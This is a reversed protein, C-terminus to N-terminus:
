HVIGTKEAPIQEYLRDKGIEELIDVLRHVEAYTNYLAVPALRVVNPERYDPIVKKLKLAQCIRYAESHELAVHGGRVADERPNGVAYGYPTLRADILFMLYATLNLSKERIRDIGAEAVIKLNGELGAMSLMPATGTLWADADPAPDHKHHLEFQTAKLNGHWGALGPTMGFHRRNIYLGGVAGPGANLYKYNCWIAFDADAKKLDHPIAGISHCLDWGIIIGRERAARSLKEINLLQASRYLVSPMLCLAVDDTMAAIVAEEDILRGDPSEVVKVADAPDYGKLMVQSDVAHRDTPFNLDDVLIKYREKTPKYFTAIAQHINITTSNTITVEDKDAGILPALLGGLYSPYLFYLGDEATWIGIGQGKWVSLINLIAAEADRSCLGLSNGDMYLEDEKVYFRERLSAIPDVADLKAAYDAGLEFTRM